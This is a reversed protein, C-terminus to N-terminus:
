PSAGDDYLDHRTSRINYLITKTELHNTSKINYLITKTELDYVRWLAAALINDQNQLFSECVMDLQFM